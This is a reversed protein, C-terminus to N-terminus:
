RRKKAIVTYVHWHKSEGLATPRNNEVETFTELDFARFLNRAQLPTHFTMEPDSAWSDRNGFLQGAFRGGNRLSTEIKNWLGAFHAPSCFPLSLGAYVLDASPLIVTEFTAVRTELGEAFHSPVKERVRAIAEVEKDIALVKWGGELLALTETGDGCGLDIAQLSSDKQFRAIVDLLLPRPSRGAIAKYYNTWVNSEDQNAM